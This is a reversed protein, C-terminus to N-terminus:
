AAVPLSIIVFVSAPQFRSYCFQLAANDNHPSRPVVYCKRLIDGKAEPITARLEAILSYFRDDSHFRVLLEQSGFELSVSESKM